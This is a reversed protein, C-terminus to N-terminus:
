LSLSRENFNEKKRLASLIKKDIISDSVFVYYYLDIFPSAIRDIRGASQEMVWYAYNLSYFVIVNTEYCEWADMGANYQVLYIWKDDLPILEHKQGNWEACVIENDRCFKRLMDLEFNFNYFVILRRHKNYIKHLSKIRSPDSNVCRRLLLGVQSINQIPEKKYPDWRNYYIDNAVKADFENQVLESHRITKRNSVMNVTIMNKLEELRKVGHIRKVKPYKSFPDYEVHARIFETRNRYFGNAVFIPIYALWTDGPTASMLIWRNSKTIKYFSKVWSGSGMVKQEDFIFFGNTVNIYKKINNWSDVIVKSRIVSYERNTSIGFRACEEEWDHMDRKKPTTIVYLDKPDDSDYEKQVFYGIGTASKGSGVGGCLISGSRLEEIAKEQHPYFKFMPLLGAEAIAMVSKAIDM